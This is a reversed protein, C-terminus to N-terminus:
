QEINLTAVLVADGNQQSDRTIPLREMTALNYMGIYVHYQGPAADEPLQITYGDAVTQDPLWASTPM